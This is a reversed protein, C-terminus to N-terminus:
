MIFFNETKEVENKVFNRLWSNEVKSLINVKNDNSADCEFFDEDWNVICMSLVESTETLNKKLDKVDEGPTYQKSLEVMKIFPEESTISILEIWADLEGHIPHVVNIRKEKPQTDSLKIKKM